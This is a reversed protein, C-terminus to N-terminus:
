QVRSGPRYLPAVLRRACEARERGARRIASPNLPKIAETFQEDLDHQEQLAKLQEPSVGERYGEPFGLLEPDVPDAEVLGLREKFRKLEEHYASARVSENYKTSEIM